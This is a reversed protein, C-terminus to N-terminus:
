DPPMPWPPWGPQPQRPNWSSAPRPPRPLCIACCLVWSPEFPAYGAQRLRDATDFTALDTLRFLPPLGQEVYHTEIAPLLTSFDASPSLPSASNARKTHGDSTRLMWGDLMATHRAPWAHAAYEELERIQALSIM